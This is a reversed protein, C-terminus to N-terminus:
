NLARMGIEKALNFGVSTGIASIYVMEPDLQVIAGTFDAVYFALIIVIFDFIIWEISDILEEM